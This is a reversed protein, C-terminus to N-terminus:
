WISAYCWIVVVNIHCRLTRLAKVNFHHKWFSFEFFYNKWNFMIILYQRSVLFTSESHPRMKKSLHIDKPKRFFFLSLKGKCPLCWLLFCKDGAIKKKKTMMVKGLPLVASYNLWLEICANHTEICWLVFSFMWNWSSFLPVTWPRMQTQWYLYIVHSTSKWM